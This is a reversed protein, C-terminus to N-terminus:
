YKINCQCMCKIGFALKLSSQCSTNSGTLALGYGYNGKMWINQWDAGSPKGM